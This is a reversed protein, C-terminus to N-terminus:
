RRFDDARRCRLLCRMAHRFYRFRQRCYCADIAIMADFYLMM